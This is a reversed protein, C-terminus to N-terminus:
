HIIPSQTLGLDRIQFGHEKCLEQPTKRLNNEQEDERRPPWRQLHSNIILNDGLASKVQPSTAEGPTKGQWWQQCPQFVWLPFYESVLTCDRCPPTVQIPPLPFLDGTEQETVMWLCGFDWCPRRQVAWTCVLKSHFWSKALWTTYPLRSIIGLTLVQPCNERQNYAEKVNHKSNVSTLGCSTEERGYPGKSLWDASNEMTIKWAALLQQCSSQTIKNVYNNVSGSIGGFSWWCRLQPRAWQLWWWSTTLVKLVFHPVKGWSISEAVFLLEAVQCMYQTRTWASNGHCPQGSNGSNQQTQRPDYSKKSFHKWSLCVPRTGKSMTSISLPASVM